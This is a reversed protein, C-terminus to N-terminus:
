AAANKFGDRMKQFIHSHMPAGCAAAIRVSSLDYKAQIEPPLSFVWDYMIPVMFRLHDQVPRDAAPEGGTFLSASYM